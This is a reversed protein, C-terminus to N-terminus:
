RKRFKQNPMILIRIVRKELNKEYKVGLKKMTINWKESEKHVHM